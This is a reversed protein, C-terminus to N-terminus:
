SKTSNMNVLPFVCRVYQVRVTNVTFTVYKRSHKPCKPTSGRKKFPVITHNKFDDSIHEGVCAKCMQKHCIDCYMSPVPKDCLYCRLIDQGCCAPDM